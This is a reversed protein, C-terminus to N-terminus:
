APMGMADDTHSTEALVRLAHRYDCSVPDDKRLSNFRHCVLRVNGPVYGRSPEIRDLSPSLAEAKRKAHALPLGTASCRMPALLACVDVLTLTCPVRACKARQRAAGLIGIEPHAARRKRDNLICRAPAFEPWAIEHHTHAMM